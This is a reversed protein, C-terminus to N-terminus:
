HLGMHRGIIIPLGGSRRVWVHDRCPGPRGHTFWTVTNTGYDDTGFHDLIAGRVWYQVIM